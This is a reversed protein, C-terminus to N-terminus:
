STKTYYVDVFTEYINTRDIGTVLRVDIINNHSVCFCSISNQAVTSAYPLQFFTDDSSRYAMGSIRVIHNSNVSLGTSVDKTTNNPLSGCNIRKRFVQSGDIYEITPVETGTTIITGHISYFEM